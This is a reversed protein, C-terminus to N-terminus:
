ASGDSFFAVLDLTGGSDTKNNIVMLETRIKVEGKPDIKKQIGRIENVLYKSYANVDKWFKGYETYKKQLQAPTVKSQGTHYNVLEELAGHIRNGADTRLKSHMKFSAEQEETYGFFERGNKKYLRSSADSMRNEIVEGTELNYYRKIKLASDESLFLWNPNGEVDVDKQSYKEQDLM